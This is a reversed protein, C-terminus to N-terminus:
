FPDTYGPHDKVAYSVDKKETQTTKKQSLAQKDEKTKDNPVLDALKWTGNTKVLVRNNIPGSIEEFEGTALPNLNGDLLWSRGNMEFSLADMDIVQTNTVNTLDALSSKGDASWLTTEEQHTSAYPSCISMYVMENNESPLSLLYQTFWASGSGLLSPALSDRNKSSYPGTVKDAIPNWIWYQDPNEGGEKVLCVPEDPIEDMPDRYKGANPGSSNLGVMKFTDYSEMSADTIRPKYQETLELEMIPGTGGMGGCQSVENTSNPWQNGTSVDYDDRNEGLCAHVTSGDQSAIKLFDSASESVIEGQDNMFSYKGNQQIVWVENNIRIPISDLAGTERVTEFSDLVPAYKEDIEEKKQEFFSYDESALQESAEQVIQNQKTEQKQATYVEYLGVYPEPKKPEISKAELYSTEARQYDQDLLYREGAEINEAYRDALESAKDQQMKNYVFWGTGGAAGLVLLTCLTIVLAKKKKKKGATKSGPMGQFSSGAYTQQNSSNLMTGCAPCFKEQDSCTTHCNPCQKM